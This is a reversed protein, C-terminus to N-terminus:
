GGARDSRRPRYAGRAGAADHSGACRAPLQPLAARGARSSRYRPASSRRARHEPVRPDGISDCNESMRSNARDAAPFLGPGGPAAERTTCGNGYLSSWQAPCNDGTARPDRDRQADHLRRVECRLGRSRRGSRGRSASRPRAGESGQPPAPAHPEAGAHSATWVPCPAECGDDVPLGGHASSV